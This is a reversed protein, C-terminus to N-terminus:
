ASAASSCCCPCPWRRPGWPSTTGTALWSGFPGAGHFWVAVALVIAVGILLLGGGDRQHERDLDKATAAQRGVARVLWGITHALGMWLGAVGRGILSFPNYSSPAGKKALIMEGGIVYAAAHRDRALAAIGDADTRREAARDLRSETYGLHPKPGLDPRPPMNPSIRM